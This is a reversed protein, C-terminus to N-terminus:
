CSQPELFGSFLFELSAQSDYLMCSKVEPNYTRAMYQTYLNSLFLFLKLFRSSPSPSLSPSLFSPLFSLFFPLFSPFFGFTHFSLGLSTSHNVLDCPLDM